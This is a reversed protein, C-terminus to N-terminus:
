NPAYILSRYVPVIKNPRAPHGDKSYVMEVRKADVAKPMTRAKDLWQQELWRSRTAVDVVQKMIRGGQGGPPWDLYPWLTLTTLEPYLGCVRKTILVAGAIWERKEESDVAKADIQAIMELREARDEPDVQRSLDLLHRQGNKSRFTKDEGEDVNEWFHVKGPEGFKVGAHQGRHGVFCYCQIEADDPHPSM